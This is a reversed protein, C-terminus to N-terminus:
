KPKLVITFREYIHSDSTWSSDSTLFRWRRSTHAPVRAADTHQAKFIVLPQMTAGATSVCEIAAVREQRGEITKRSSEKRKSVLARSSQSDSVVFGSEYM